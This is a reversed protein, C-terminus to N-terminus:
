CRDAVLQREPPLQDTRSFDGRLKGPPLAGAAQMLMSLSRPTFSLPKM